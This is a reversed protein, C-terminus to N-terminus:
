INEGPTTIGCKRDHTGKVKKKIENIFEMAGQQDEDLLVRDLEMIDEDSLTISTKAM